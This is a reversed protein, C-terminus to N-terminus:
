TLAALHCHFHLALPRDDTLSSPTRPRRVGPPKHMAALFPLIRQLIGFLFGLLWGVILLLGFLTQAGPLPADIAVVLGAALSGALLAWSIRIMAFSRGLERRMG